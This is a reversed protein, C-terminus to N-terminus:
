VNADKVGNQLRLAASGGESAARQTEAKNEMECAYRHPIKQEKFKSNQNKEVSFFRNRGNIDKLSRANQYGCTTFLQELAEHFLHHTELYIRGGNRLCHMGIDAIAKYFLLPENDPVFLASGPEHDKVNTHMASKESQPIYPPNSVIIDYTGLQSYNPHLMDDHLWTIDVNHRRANAQATQLAEPSFDTASIHSHALKKALTIAIAGSGTGLDLVQLDRRNGNERIILDVLEETEPRPILVSPNVVLEMDYFDTVGVVYQIPEGSKLRQLDNATEAQRKEDVNENINLYLQHAPLHWKKEAYMRFIGRIEAEEYLSQLADSFHQSLDAYTEM